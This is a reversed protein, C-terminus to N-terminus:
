KKGGGFMDLLQMRTRQLRGLVIASFRKMLEYGMAPSEECKGRLCRADMQIVETDEMARASFHWEYPPFLWSWGLIKGAELTQITLVGRDASEIDIAVKGHQIIYFFNAQEKQSFISTRAPFKAESACGALENIFEDKMGKFFPHAKLLAVVNSLEM